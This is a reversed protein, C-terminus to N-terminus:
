DGKPIAVSDDANWGVIVAEGGWGREPAAAMRDVKLLAGNWRVHHRTIAGMYIADELTGSLCNMDPLVTRSISLKEPRVCVQIEGRPLWSAEPVRIREGGELAVELYTGDSTVVRGELINAEGMFEAIFRSQPREYLQRPDGSQVERGKNMVVVSDSMVQAEVQDHTVYVTSIGLKRQLAKIEVRMSARLTADLNSLPEDLLLLDPEIILARALAVRQQQGGSLQHPYRQDLGQLQTLALSQRIRTGISAKDLGRMRLGFAVNQAVTMHPFLAYNQFVLGINRLYPPVQTLDKGHIFITGSSPAVFGAIMRLTTTKGCGSPGLLSLFHGKPLAISLDRVAYNDAYQKSVGRAELALEEGGPSEPTAEGASPSPYAGDTNQNKM